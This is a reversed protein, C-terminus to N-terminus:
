HSVIILTRKLRESACERPPRMPCRRVSDRYPHTPAISISVRSSPTDPMKPHEGKYPRMPATSISLRSSPADLMSTRLLNSAFALPLVNGVFHQECEKALQDFSSILLTKLQAYWEQAPGQLMTPFTHCMLADM